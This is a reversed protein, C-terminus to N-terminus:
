VLDIVARHGHANALKRDCTLLPVGLAEALAIYAADYPTINKRLQWIRPGLIDHPYRTLDLAFLDQVARGALTSSLGGGEMTRLASIVELDIVHPAHLRVEPRAVRRAVNSARPTGGIILEVLASADIVIM